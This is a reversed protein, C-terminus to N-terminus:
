KYGIIKKIKPKLYEAFQLLANLKTVNYHVKPVAGFGRFFREISEIMSGEFDFVESHQSAFKIGEWILLSTAGSNRFIPDGGGMIYYCRRNDFIFYTAAHVNGAKDVACFLKRANCDKLATDISRILDIDIPMKRGQRSFTKLQMDILVDISCDDKVIVKKQAKRIDTKINEKFGNWVADLDKLNEIRYSFKPNIKFGKWFFPLVYQNDTDLRFNCNYGKPIAEIVKNIIKKERELRKSLKAESKSIYIGLTQTLPPLDLIKFGLRKTKVVPFSAEVEGNDKKIEIKTWRDGAVINLWMDTEFISNTLSNNM